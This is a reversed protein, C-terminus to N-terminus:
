QKLSDFWTKAASLSPFFCEEHDANPQPDILQV